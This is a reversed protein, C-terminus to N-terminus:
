LFDLQGEESGRTGFKHIFTGDLQFSQICHGGSDAVVLTNGPTVAVDWSFQFQGPGNGQSGFSFCYTGDTQYVSIRHNGRDAAYVKNHHVTIGAPGYKKGTSFESNGFKGMYYGDLDFKQIRHNNSDVVYLTNDDGFSVGHPENFMGAVNRHSGIKKVLKNQENFVYVCHHDYDAVAWHHESSFAVGWPRGMKGDNTIIKNSKRLKSYDRSVIFSLPSGKISEGGITVSLKHHGVLETNFSGTYRGNNSDKVTVSQINGRGNDLQANVVPIDAECQLSYEKNYVHGFQPFPKLVCPVFYCSDIEKPVLCLKNYTDTVKHVRHELEKEGALMKDDGGKEVESVLKNVSIAHAQVSEVVELQSTLLGSVKNYLEQKLQQRQQEVKQVVNDFFQDINDDVTKLQQLVRKKTDTINEHAESLKVIM